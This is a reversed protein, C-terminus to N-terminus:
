VVNYSSAADARADVAERAGQGLGLDVELLGRDDRADAAGSADRAVEREVREVRGM